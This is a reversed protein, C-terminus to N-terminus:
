SGNVLETLFNLDSNNPTISELLQSKETLKELIDNYETLKEKQFEEKGKLYKVQNLVNPLLRRLPETEEIIQM